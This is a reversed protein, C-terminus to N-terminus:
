PATRLTLRAPTAYGSVRVVHHGNPGTPDGNMAVKMITAGCTQATLAFTAM